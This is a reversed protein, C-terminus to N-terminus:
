VGLMIWPRTSSSQVAAPSAPSSTPWVAEWAKAPGAPGTHTPPAAARCGRPLPRAARLSGCRASRGDREQAFGDSGLASLDLRTARVAKARFAKADSALDESNGANVAAAAGSTSNETATRCSLLQNSCLRRSLLWNSLLRTSLEWMSLALLAAPAEVDSSEPEWHDKISAAGRAKGQGCERAAVSASGARRRPLMALTM